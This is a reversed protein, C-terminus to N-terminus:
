LITRTSCRGLICPISHNYGSSLIPDTCTQSPQQSLRSFPTIFTKLIPCCGKSDGGVYALEDDDGDGDSAREPHFCSNRARARFEPGTSGEIAERKLFDRVRGILHRNDTVPWDAVIVM